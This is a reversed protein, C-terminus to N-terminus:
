RKTMDVVIRIRDASAKLWQEEGSGDISKKKRKGKAKATRAKIGAEARDQLDPTWDLAGHQDLLRLLTEICLSVKVNDTIGNTNAAFPLYSTELTEQSLDDNPPLPADAAIISRLIYQTLTSAATPEFPCLGAPSMVSFFAPVSLPRIHEFFIHYLDNLPTFAQPLAFSVKSLLSLLRMRLNVADIGGLSQTVDLMSGNSGSKKEAPPSPPESESDELDADDEEEMYDGYNDAEIDIREEAKKVAGDKKLVKTENQWIEGFETVARARGDALVARLIKREKGATDSGSKIFIVILSKELADDELHQGRVIWDIELTEIMLGLLSSWWDWRRKHLISCNFSWGVLQWFDESRAWLSDSEALESAIIQTQEATPSANDGTTRRRTTAGRRNLKGRGHFVFADRLTEHVPGVHRIVLRLYQLALNATEIRESSKARTTLTPHVSLTAIFALHQSPPLLASRPANSATGPTLLAKLFELAQIDGVYLDAM